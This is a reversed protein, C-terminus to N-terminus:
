GADLTASELRAPASATDDLARDIRRLLNRPVVVPRKPSSLLLWGIAFPTRMLHEAIRRAPTGGRYMEIIKERDAPTYPQGHMAALNPDDVDDGELDLLLACLRLAIDRSDADLTNAITDIDAGTRYIAVIERDGPRARVLPLERRFASPEVRPAIQPAAAPESALPPATEEENGSGDTGRVELDAEESIPLSPRPGDAAAVEIALEGSHVDVDVAGLEDAWRDDDSSPDEGSPDLRAWRLEVRPPSPRPSPPPGPLVRQADNSPQLTWNALPDFTDDGLQALMAATAIKQWADIQAKTSDRLWDKTFYNELLLYVLTPVLANDSSGLAARYGLNFVIRRQELQMDFLRDESLMEWEVEIPDDDREGLENRIAEVVRDPLGQGIPVAPKVTSTRVNSARLVDQAHSRFIDLTLGSSNVAAELASSFEPTPTVGSKEHRLRLHRELPKTLDIRIRALRLRKDNPRVDLWGGAQLLRDNRYIYIGQWDVPTRGLLWVSPSDSRPPLIFCEADLQAGDSTTASIATPYGTKGTLSFQFPDRPEVVRPPGAAETRQDWTDITIRVGRLQIIRHFTLGLAHALATITRDLWGRRETPIQSHSITELDRWEVVTGTSQPGRADWEFGREAAVHDLVEGTFSGRRIRVACPAVAHSMSYVTLTLAQSLSAAKLGIGFHGLAADDRNQQRGLRMADLLMPPTMGDGDDRIRVAVLRDDEVVFRVLIREAHADLSNDIIDAVATALTHGRGISDTISEDPVLEVTEVVDSTIDGM